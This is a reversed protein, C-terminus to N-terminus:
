ARLRRPRPRGIEFVKQAAALVPQLLQQGAAIEAAHADRDDQEDRQHDPSQGSEEADLGFFEADHQAEALMHARHLRAQVIM